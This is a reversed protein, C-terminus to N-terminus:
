LQQMVLFLEFLIYSYFTSFPTNFIFSVELALNLCSVPATLDSVLFPDNILSIRQSSNILDTLFTMVDAEIKPSPTILSQSYNKLDISIEIDTLNSQQNPDSADQKM